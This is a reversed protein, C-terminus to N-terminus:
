RMQDQYGQMRLCGHRVDCDSLGSGGSSGILVGSGGRGILDLSDEVVHVIEVDLM